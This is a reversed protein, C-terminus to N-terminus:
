RPNVIRRFFLAADTPKDHVVFFPRTVVIEIIESQYSIAGLGESLTAGFSIEM